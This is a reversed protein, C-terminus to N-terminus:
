YNQALVDDLILNWVSDEDGLPTPDVAEVEARFAEVLPEIAEPGDTAKYADMLERFAVLCHVFSPVDRHLSEYGDEGEPFGYVRGSSPDVAFVATSMVGLILWDRSEPPCDWGRSDYWSGVGVPLPEPDGVDARSFFLDDHPLGVSALSRSGPWDQGAYRPFLVVGQLGYLRVLRDLDVPHSPPM